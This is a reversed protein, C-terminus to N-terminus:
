PLDTIAIGASTRYRRNINLLVVTLTELWRSVYLPGADVARGAVVQEALQAVPAKADDDDGCLLVDERLVRGEQALSKSSVTHFGSVVRAAPAELAVMEALSIPGTEATPRGDKFAVATAVSVAIRGALYPALQRAMAEVGAAPISLFVVEGHECAQPNSVFEGRPTRSGIVVDHGHARLRAALGQGFDGSGGVIGVRM